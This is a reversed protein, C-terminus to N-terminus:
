WADFPVDGTDGRAEAHCEVRREDGEHDADHQHEQHVLQLQM